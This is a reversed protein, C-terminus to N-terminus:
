FVCDSQHMMLRLGSSKSSHTTPSPAAASTVSTTCVSWFELAAPAPSPLFTAPPGASPVSGSTMRSTITSQRKSTWSARFSPPLFFYCLLDPLLLLIYVKKKFRCFFVWIAKLRPHFASHLVMKKAKERLEREEQIMFVMDKHVASALVMNLTDAKAAMNCVMEDHSFVNYRHLMRYHDVCQRGLPM